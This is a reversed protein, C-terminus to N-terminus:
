LGSQNREICYKCNGKHTITIDKNSYANCVIYECDDIEVVVLADINPNYPFHGIVKTSMFQKQTQNTQQNPQSCGFMVVTLLLLIQKM